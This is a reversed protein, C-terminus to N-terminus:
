ILGRLRGWELWAEREKRLAGRENPHVPDEGTISRLAWTWQAPRDRLEALLLPLVRHGLGIIRQYSPNLVRATMSSIHATDRQWADRLDSFAQVFAPDISPAPPRAPHYCRDDEKAATRKLLWRASDKTKWELLHRGTENVNWM